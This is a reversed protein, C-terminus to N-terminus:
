RLTSFDIFRDEYAKAVPCNNCTFCIVIAKAGKTDGLTITKGDTTQAKFNPAKDGVALKEARLSASACLLLVASLAVVLKSRVM